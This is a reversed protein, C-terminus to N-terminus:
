FYSVKNSKFRPVAIDSPKCLSLSLIARKLWHEPNEEIVLRGVVELVLNNHWHLGIAVYM